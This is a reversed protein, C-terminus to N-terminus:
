FLISRRKRHKKHELTDRLYLNIVSVAIDYYIIKPVYIEGKGFHTHITNEMKQQM